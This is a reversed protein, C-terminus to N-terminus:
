KAQSWVPTKMKTCDSCRSKLLMVVLLPTNVCLCRSPLPSHCLFLPYSPLSCGCQCCHCRCAFAVLSVNVIIILFLVLCVRHCGFLPCTLHLSLSSGRCCALRECRRDPWPCPPCLLLLAIPLVGVIIFVIIAISPIVTASVIVVPVSPVVLIDPEESMFTAGGAIRVEITACGRPARYRKEFLM